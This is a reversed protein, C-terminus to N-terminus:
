GRAMSIDCRMSEKKEEGGRVKGGEAKQLDNICNKDRGDLRRKYKNAATM